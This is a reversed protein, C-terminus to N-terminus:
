QARQLRRRIPARKAKKAFRPGLIGPGKSGLVGAVRKGVAVYPAAVTRAIQKGVQYEVKAARVARKVLKKIGPM